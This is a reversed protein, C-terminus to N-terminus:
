IGQVPMDAVDPMEQVVPAAAGQLPQPHWAPVLSLLFGVFFYKVDQVFGRDSSIRLVHTFDLRALGAAVGSLRGAGANANNADAAPNENANADPAPAYHRKYVEYVKALIGTLHRFSIIIDGFSPILWTNLLVCLM